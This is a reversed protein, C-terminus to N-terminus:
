GGDRVTRETKGVIDGAVRDASRTLVQGYECPSHQICLALSMKVERSLSEAWDKFYEEIDKGQTIAESLQENGILDLLSPYFLRSLTSM